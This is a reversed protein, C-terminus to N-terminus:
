RVLIKMTNQRNPTTFEAQPVDVLLQEIKLYRQVVDCYLISFSFVPDFPRCGAQAKTRIM